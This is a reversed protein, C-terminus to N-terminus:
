RSGALGAQEKFFLSFLDEIGVGRARARAHPNRRLEAALEDLTADPTRIFSVPRIM